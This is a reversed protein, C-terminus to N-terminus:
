IPIANGEPLADLEDIALIRQLTRINNTLKSAFDVSIGPEIDTTITENAFLQLNYKKNM